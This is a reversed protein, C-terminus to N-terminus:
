SIELPCTSLIFNAITMHPKIIKDFADQAFQAIWNESGIPPIMGMEMCDLYDSAMLYHSNLHFIFSLHILFLQNLMVECNKLHRVRDEIYIMNCNLLMLTFRNSHVSDDLLERNKKLYTNWGFLPYLDKTRLSDKLCKLIKETKPIRHKGQIWENVEEVFFNDISIKDKLIVDMYIDLLIDDFLKRILTYADNIRGNKLLITISDLTGEIASYVYSTYNTIGHTGTAIFSFCSMSISDYFKKMYRLDNFVKHKLYAEPM